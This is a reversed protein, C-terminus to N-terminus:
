LHVAHLILIITITNLAVKLLIETIDHRDTKNTSYGTFVVSRDCIVSLSQWIINYRTIKAQIPNSSVVFTIIPISQVHLQLNYIWTDYSWSWSLRRPRWTCFYKSQSKLVSLLSILVVLVKM